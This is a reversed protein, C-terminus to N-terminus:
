NGKFYERYKKRSIGAHKKTEEWLATPLKTIKGIVDVEGVVMSQPATAYLLISEINEKALTHRYEYKKEGSLIREVYEGKIPLLIKM